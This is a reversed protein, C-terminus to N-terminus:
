LNHHRDARDDRMQDLKYDAYGEDYERQCDPCRSRKGIFSKRCEICERADDYYDLYAM